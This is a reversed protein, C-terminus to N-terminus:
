DLEEDQYIKERFIVNIATQELRNPITVGKIWNDITQVSKGLRQAILRKYNRRATRSSIRRIKNQYFNGFENM